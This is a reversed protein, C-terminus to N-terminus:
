EGKLVDVFLNSEAKLLIMVSKLAHKIKYNEELLKSNQILLNINNKELEMIEESKEM